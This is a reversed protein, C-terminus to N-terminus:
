LHRHLVANLPKKFLFNVANGFDFGDLNDPESTPNVEHQALLHQTSLTECGLAVFPDEWDASEFESCCRSSSGAGSNADQCKPFESSSISGDRSFGSLQEPNELSSTQNLLSNANGKVYSEGIVYTTLLATQPRREEKTKM